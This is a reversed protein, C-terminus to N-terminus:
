QMETCLYEVLAFWIIDEIMRAWDRMTFLLLLLVFSFFFFSRQRVLIYEFKSKKTKM